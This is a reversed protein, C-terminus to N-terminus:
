QRTTSDSCSHVSLYLFHILLVAIFLGIDIKFCADAENNEFNLNHRKTFLDRNTAVAPLVDIGFRTERCLSTMHM